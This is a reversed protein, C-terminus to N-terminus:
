SCCGRFRCMWREEAGADRQEVRHEQVRFLVSSMCDHTAWAKRVTPCLCLRLEVCLAYEADVRDPGAGGVAALSM